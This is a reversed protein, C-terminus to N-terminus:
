SCGQNKVKIIKWRAKYIFRRTVDKAYWVVEYRRFAVIGFDNSMPCKKTKSEKGETKSLLVCHTKKQEKIFLDNKQKYATNEYRSRSEIM